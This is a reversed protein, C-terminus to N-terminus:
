FSHGGGGGSSGGGGSGSSGGGGGGSSGGSGRSVPDYVKTQHTYTAEPKTYTFKRHINGLIEAKGPGSLRTFCVLLGFNAFLALMMALLANSIYKMPQAIREGELLAYIQRFAEAACGFYDAASAYRYVNDTVTEAKSSTVVAYVAGDSHIWINRNDMDILFVTGSDTGFRSRYYQRVYNETSSPNEETSKFAANGFATIGKMEEALARRQEETLLGADDEVLVRYGTEPNEYLAQGAAGEGSAQSVFTMFIWVMLIGTLSATFFGYRIRRFRERAM